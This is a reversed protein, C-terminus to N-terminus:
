TAREDLNVHWIPEVQLHKQLARPATTFCQLMLKVMKMSSLSSTPARGCTESGQVTRWLRWKPSGASYIHEYMLRAARSLDPCHPPLRVRWAQQGASPLLSEVHDRKIKEEVLQGEPSRPM